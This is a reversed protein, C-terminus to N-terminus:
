VKFVQHGTQWQVASHHSTFQFFAELFHWLDEDHVLHHTLIGTAPNGPIHGERRQLLHSTIQQLAKGTGIFERNGRWNILDVHTNKQCFGTGTLIMTKSGFTSLGVYGYTELHSAVTASIRNWPPVLAPVFRDGFQRRLIDAGKVLEHQIDSLTRHDGLECKKQSAPAHNQHSWGHQVISINAVGDILRSLSRDLRHPVTALVLPTASTACLRVLRDLQPCPQQADDDRWWLSASKKERCWMDLERELVYWADHTESTLTM